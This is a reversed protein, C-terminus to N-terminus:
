TPREVIGVVVDGVNTGSLGTRLLAGVADLADHSRHGSLDDAPDRGADRVADWTAAHV